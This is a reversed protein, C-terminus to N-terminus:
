KAIKLNRKVAAFVDDLDAKAKPHLIRQIFSVPDGTGARKAEALADFVADAGYDRLWMGICKRADKEPVARESM